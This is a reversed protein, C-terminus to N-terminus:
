KRYPEDSTAPYLSKDRNYYYSGRTAAFADLEKDTLMFTEVHDKNPCSDFHYWGFGCDILNWFHQTEGGLRTVQMNDIGARTLLAQAIAFYTFCDGEFKTMARYAEALWDSKDSDGTYGVHGKIWHYIAEAKEVKTMGNKIIKALVKDAEDNVMEETVMFKIVTVTTIVTSKNGSLDEATYIVNYVGERKLNVDSSDVKVELDEDKNDTVYVGKRYAVGDGIYVTKDRTGMIRPPETDAKVFLIVPYETTNGYDDKLVITVEQSGTRTFDPANKFEATVGSVDIINTVFNDAPVPENRWTERNNFVAKPATTDVVEINGTVERGDVNITIKHLAPKSIDLSTLDTVFFIDYKDNDVFDNVTIDMVSGAEMTVTSKIDLVTLRAELMTRNKGSDELVLTVEKEGPTSTDPAQLYSVTVDTADRIDTVFADAKIDEDRLVMQDAAAATPPTTDIIQLSSTHTRSGIKIKIEYTGPKNLDLSQLDTLFSGKRNKYLLFDEVNLIDTGAEMIVSEVVMPRLQAYALLGAVALIEISLLLLIIRKTHSKRRKM